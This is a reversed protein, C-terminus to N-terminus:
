PNWRANRREQPDRGIRRSLERSILVVIRECNSYMVATMKRHAYTLLMREKAAAVESVMHMQARVDTVKSGAPARVFVVAEEYKVNAEAREEEVEAQALQTATYNTWSVMESFMAM